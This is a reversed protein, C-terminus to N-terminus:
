YEVGVLMLGLAPVTSTSLQASGCEVLGCFEDPTLKKLGVRLMAGVMNRVMHPLFATGVVDFDLIPPAGHWQADFLTRTTTRREGSALYRNLGHTFCAFDYTGRVCEAAENLAEVDLPDAVHYSYRRAWVSPLEANWLSYRYHRSRASRRAHFGDAVDEVSKIVVDAPLNANLARRLEAVSLRSETKFSVAQGLAHAGADTRGAGVVRTITGTVAAVVRELEGQISCHRVQIAFGHYDTGDYEVVLKLNRL